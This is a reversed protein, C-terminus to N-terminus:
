MGLKNSNNIENYPSIWVQCASEFSINLNIGLLGKKEFIFGAHVKM